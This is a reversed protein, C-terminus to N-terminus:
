STSLGSAKRRSELDELAQDRAKELRNVQITCFERATSPCNEGAKKIEGAFRARIREDTANFYAEREAANRFSAPILAIEVMEPYQNNAGSAADVAVGILGGVLINGVTTGHISSPILRSSPAHGALTCTADLNYKSRDVKVKTPTQGTQVVVGDERKLTCAAGGPDTNIAIEQTTGAIITACGGLLSGAVIVTVCACARAFGAFMTM